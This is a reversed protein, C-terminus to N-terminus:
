IMFGRFDNGKVGGEFFQYYCGKNKSIAMLLSINSSKPPVKVNPVFGKRAWGM